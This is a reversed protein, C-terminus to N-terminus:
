GKRYWAKIAKFDTIQQPPIPVGLMELITPFISYVQMGAGGLQGTDPNFKIPDGYKGKFETSNEMDGRKVEGFVNGGNTCHGAMFFSFSNGHNTGWADIGNETCFYGTRDFESTYNILTCDLMTGGGDPNPTKGLQRILERTGAFGLIHQAGQYTIDHHSDGGTPQFEVAASLDNVVLFESLAFRWAMERAVVVMSDGDGATLCSVDSMNYNKLPTYYEVFGSGNDHPAMDGMSKFNGMVGVGSSLQDSAEKQLARFYRLWITKFAAGEAFNSNSLSVSASYGNMYGNIVGKSASRNLKNRALIGLQAISDEIKQATSATGAIGTTRPTTLAKWSGHNPLLSPIALGTMMGSHTFDRTGGAIKVYHLASPGRSEAQFAAFIAAYCAMYPSSGGGYGFQNQNHGYVVNMGRAIMVKAFDDRTWFKMGPAMKAGTQPHIFADNKSYRVKEYNDWGVPKEGEIRQSNLEPNFYNLTYHTDWGGIDILNILHQRKGKAAANAFRLFPYPLMMLGLGSLAGGVFQRRSLDFKKM